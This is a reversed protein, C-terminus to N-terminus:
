VSTEEQEHGMVHDCRKKQPCRRENKVGGSEPIKQKPGMRAVFTVGQWARTISPWTKYYNQNPGM